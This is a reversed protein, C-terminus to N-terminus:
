SHRDTFRLASAQGPRREAQQICELLARVFGDDSFGDVLWGGARGARLECVAGTVPRECAWVARIPFFYRSTTGTKEAKVSLLLIIADALDPVAIWEEITVSPATDEKSAYWRRAMLYQPLIDRVLPLRCLPDSALSAVHNDKMRVLM